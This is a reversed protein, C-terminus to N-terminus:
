RWYWPDWLGWNMRDEEAWLREQAIQQETVLRQYALYETSGGVYLCRCKYPDAFTYRVDNDQNRAVIRLPPMVALDHVREPNDAPRTQFGAAALM